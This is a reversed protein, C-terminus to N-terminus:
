SSHSKKTRWTILAVLPLILAAGGCIPSAPESAPTAPTTTIPQTTPSIKMVPLPLRTSQPTTIPTATNFVYLGDAGKSLQGNFFLGAHDAVEQVLPDNPALELARRMESLLQDHDEVSLESGAQGFLHADLVHLFLDVYGAHLRGDEPSLSIAKEYAQRALNFLPIGGPDTRAFHHLDATFYADVYAKGLRSWAQADNPDRATEERGILVQNWAIPNLLVLGQNYSNDPEFNTYTWSVERGNFQSTKLRQEDGFIVNQTNAEYPLRLIITASGITGKWGAGTSLLYEFYTEVPGIMYGDLDYSVKISVDEGVPFIVDFEVWPVLEDKKDSVPDPAQIRRYTVTKQDVKISVSKCESFAIGDGGPSGVAIPFRVAMDERKGGLNQMSFVATVHAQPLEVLLAEIVVTESLMRVQTLENGPGLNAGPAKPPPPSVDARVASPFALLVALCVSVLLFRSKRGGPDAM